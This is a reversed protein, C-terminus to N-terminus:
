RERGIRIAPGRIARVAWCRWSRRAVRARIQRAHDFSRAVGFVTLGSGSMAAGLAGAALLAAEMQAVQGHAAAAVRELANYLSAAVRAPRRSRLAAVMQRVHNGDSYMAPTVGGYIAPTSAGVGPNILVLPLAMGVVPEIREGRGTGLAAGGRLFFPVDTGLTVALEDLRAVSWRLGWLRSLGVLTAAADASGGGLGAAVPIRKDLRIRAGRSVAAAERLAHAARAVLNSGDSPVDPASTRVELIESDEIVLRDSLDVAQMVTAVEHYGDDRKGLVELALNIKASASLVLRRAVGSRKSLAGFRLM